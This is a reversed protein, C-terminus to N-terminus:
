EGKQCHIEKLVEFSTNGFRNLYQQYKVEKYLHDDKKTYLEPMIDIRTTLAFMLNQGNQLLFDMMVVDKHKDRLGRYNINQEAAQVKMLLQWIEVNGPFFITIIFCYHLRRM